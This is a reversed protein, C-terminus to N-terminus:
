HPTVHVTPLNISAILTTLTRSPRDRLVPKEQLRSNTSRRTDPRGLTVMASNAAPDKTLPVVKFVVDVSVCPFSGEGTRDTAQTKRLLGIHPPVNAGCM